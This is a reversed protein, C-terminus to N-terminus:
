RVSRIGATGAAKLVRGRIYGRLVAGHFRSDFSHDRNDGLVFYANDALKLPGFSDRLKQPEPAADSLDNADKHVAYFEFVEKGDVFLKKHRIEVTEGPLAVVRKMTIVDTNAPSRYAVIDGRQPPDTTYASENVLVQEKEHITPEMSVSNVGYVRYGDSLTKAGSLLLLLSAAALLRRM